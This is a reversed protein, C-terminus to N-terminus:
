GFFYCSCYSILLMPFPSACSFPSFSASFFLLILLYQFLFFCIPLIYDAFPFHAVFFLLVPFLLLVNLTLLVLLLILLQFVSPLLVLLLTLLLYFWQLFSLYVSFSFYIFRAFFKFLCKRLSSVCIGLM